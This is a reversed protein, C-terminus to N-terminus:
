KMHNYISSIPNTWIEVAWEMWSLEYEIQQKTKLKTYEVEHSDTKLNREELHKIVSRNKKGTSERYDSNTSSRCLKCASRHWTNDNKNIDFCDWIKEIWCISCQRGYKTIIYKSAMTIKNFNWILLGPDLTSQYKYSM